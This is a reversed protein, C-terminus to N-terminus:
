NLTHGGSSAPEVVARMSSKSRPMRWDPGYAQIQDRGFEAEALGCTIVITRGTSDVEVAHRFAKEKSTLFLKQLMEIVYDYTHDDDDLLVVNYSPALQEVQEKEIEPPAITKEMGYILYYLM